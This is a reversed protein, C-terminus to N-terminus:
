LNSQILRALRATAERRAGWCGDREAGGAMSRRLVSSLGDGRAGMKSVVIEDSRDSQANNQCRERMETPLNEWATRDTNKPHRCDPCADALSASTARRCGRSASMATLTLSMHQCPWIAHM